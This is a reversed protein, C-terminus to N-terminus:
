KGDTSHEKAWGERFKAMLKDSPKQKGRLGAPVFEKMTNELPRFLGMAEVVQSGGGGQEERLGGRRDSQGVAGADAYHACALVILTRRITEGPTDSQVWKILKSGADVVGSVYTVKGDKEEQFEPFCYRLGGLFLDSTRHSLCAAAITRAAQLDIEGVNVSFETYLKRGLELNAARAAQKAAKLAEREAKNFAAQKEKEADNTAQAGVTHPIKNSKAAAADKANQEAIRKRRGVERQYIVDFTDKMWQADVVIGTQPADEDPGKASYACGVAVAAAMDDPTYEPKWEGWNADFGKAAEEQTKKLGLMKRPFSNPIVFWGRKKGGEKVIESVVWAVVRMPDKALVSGYEDRGAVRTAVEEALEGSVKSIDALVGRCDLRLKRDFYLQQVGTPLDLLELRQTVRAQAVNLREAVGKPTLGHKDILQKYARAEDVPNMDDRQLNTVLARVYEDVSEGAEAVVIAPIETLGAAQAARFRREGSEIRYGDANTVVRIPDLVGEAKISATLEALRQEDFETRPNDGAHIRDLPISTIQL